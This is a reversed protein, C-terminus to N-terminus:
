TSPEKRRKIWKKLFVLVLLIFPYVFIIWFGIQAVFDTLRLIQQDHKIVIAAILFLTCAVFLTPKSPINFLRKLGHIVAWMLLVNNPIIVMMWEVIVIYDLRELFSFSVSRFSSLFPWEIHTVRELSFYGIVVITTIVFVFATFTIGLFAPLKAKEKNSIFPYLLFLIEFGAFTYTTAKAGQLLDPLSAQFMPMFHGWDSRSLPDYVFIWLVQSLLFFIFCVGIVIRLGGLISYAVLILLLAGIVYSPLTPYIFIQIVEIYTLLVSLLAIGFYLVYVLGFLKGIWKGFLDVQIGFIDANKYQNLIVFMVSVVLVMALYAIIISLWADQKAYQFVYQTGGMLGVGIQLSSFAFFLYFAQITKNAPMNLNVKM